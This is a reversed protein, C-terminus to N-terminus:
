NGESKVGLDDSIDLVYTKTVGSSACRKHVMMNTRDEFYVAEHIGNGEGCKECSVVTSLEVERFDHQEYDKLKM